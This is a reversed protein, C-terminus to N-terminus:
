EKRWLKVARFPILTVRMTQGGAELDIDSAVTAAILVRMGAKIPPPNITHGYDTVLPDGVMLVTAWPQFTQAVDGQWKTGIIQKMEGDLGLIKSAVYDGRTDGPSERTEIQDRVVMIEGAPIGWEAIVARHDAVVDSPLEAVVGYKAFQGSCTACEAWWNTPESVYKTHGTTSSHEEMSMLEPAAPCNNDHVHRPAKITSEYEGGYPTKIGSTM